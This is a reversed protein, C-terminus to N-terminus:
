RKNDTSFIIFQLVCLQIKQFLYKFSNMFKFLFLIIFLYNLIKKM